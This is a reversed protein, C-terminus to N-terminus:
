APQSARRPKTTRRSSKPRESSPEQWDYKRLRAFMYREFRLDYQSVNADREAPDFLYKRENNLAIRQWWERYDARGLYMEIYAEWGGWQRKRYSRLRNAYALYAREFISSLLDFLTDRQYLEETTLESTPVPDYPGLRLGPHRLCHDLFMHYQDTAYRHREARLQSNQHLQNIVFLIASPIIALIAVISAVGQLAEADGRLAHAFLDMM